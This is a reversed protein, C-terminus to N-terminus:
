LNYDLHFCNFEAKGREDIEILITGDNRTSLMYRLRGKYQVGKANNSNSYAPEVSEDKERASVINFYPKGMNEFIEKCYGSSHGHHSAIFFSTDKILKKFNQNELLELWATKELDGPFVIKYGQYEIVTVISSNNVFKTEDISKAESPTLYYHELKMGWDPKNAKQNYLKQWESFTDLNEYRKQQNEGQKVERWYYEQRLMIAPPFDNKLRKVDSLHDDHPHTLVFKSLKYGRNYEKIGTLENHIIYKIPSFDEKKGCDILLGYDNPSRVFACFGHEVDFILVRLKKM